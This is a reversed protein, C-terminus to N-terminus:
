AYRDDIEWGLRSTGPASIKFSYGSAAHVDNRVQAGLLVKNNDPTPM